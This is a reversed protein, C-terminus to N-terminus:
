QWRREYYDNGRRHFYGYWRLRSESKIGLMGGIKENGIMKKGSVSSIYLRLVIAHVFVM